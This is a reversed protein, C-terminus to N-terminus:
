AMSLVKAQSPRLRLNALSKSSSGSTESVITLNAMIRSM